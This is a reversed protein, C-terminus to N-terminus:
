QERCLNVGELVLEGNSVKMAEDSVALYWASAIGDTRLRIKRVFRPDTLWSDKQFSLSARLRYRPQGGVPGDGHRELSWKYMIGIVARAGALVVEGETGSISNILIM